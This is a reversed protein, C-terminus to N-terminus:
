GCTDAEFMPPIKMLRTALVAVVAEEDCGHVLQGIVPQRSQAVDINM